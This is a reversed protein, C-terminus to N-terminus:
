PAVLSDGPQTGEGNSFPRGLNGSEVGSVESAYGHRKPQTHLWTNAAHFIMVSRRVHVLLSPTEAFVRQTPHECPASPLFLSRTKSPTRYRALRGCPRDFPECGLPRFVVENGVHLHGGSLLEQQRVAPSLHVDRRPGTGNGGSSCEDPSFPLSSSRTSLSAHGTKKNALM